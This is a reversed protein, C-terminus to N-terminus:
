ELYVLYEVIDTHLLIDILAMTAANVQWQSDIRAPRGMSANNEKFLIRYSRNGACNCKTLKRSGILFIILMKNFANVWVSVTVSNTNKKKIRLYAYEKFNAMHISCAIVSFWQIMHVPTGKIYVSLLGQIVSDGEYFSLM